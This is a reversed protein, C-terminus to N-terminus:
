MQMIKVMRASSWVIFYVVGVITFFFLFFYQFKNLSVRHYRVRIKNNRPNYIPLHGGSYPNEKKIAKKVRWHSFHKLYILYQICYFFIYITKTRFQQLKIPCLYIKITYFAYTQIYM